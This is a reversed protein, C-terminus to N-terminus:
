RARDDVELRTSRFRIEPHTAADLMSEGLLHEDRGPNLTSLSGSRITTELRSSALDEAIEITADYDTFGGRVAGLGGLHHIVFGLSSHSMDVEWAGVISTAAHVPTTM